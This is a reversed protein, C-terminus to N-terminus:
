PCACLPANREPAAVRASRKCRAPEWEMAGGGRKKGERCLMERECVALEVRVDDCVAVIDLEAVRVTVLLALTVGGGVSLAVLVREELAVADMDVLKECVPVGVCVLVAVLVIVRVGLPEMVAVGGLVTVLEPVMVAVALSEIENEADSVAATVGM